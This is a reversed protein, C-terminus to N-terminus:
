RQAGGKTAQMRRIAALIKDQAVVAAGALLGVGIAMWMSNMLDLGFGVVGRMLLFGATHIAAFIVLRLVSSNAIAQQIEDYIRRITSKTFELDDEGRTEPLKLIGSRFCLSVLTLVFMSIGTATIEAYPGLSLQYGIAVLGGVLLMTTLIQWIKSGEMRLSNHVHVEPTAPPQQPGARQDTEAM